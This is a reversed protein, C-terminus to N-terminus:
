WAGEQMREEGTRKMEPPAKQRDDLVQEIRRMMVGPDTGLVMEAEHLAHGLSTGWLGLPASQVVKKLAVRATAAQSRALALESRLKEILERDSLSAM